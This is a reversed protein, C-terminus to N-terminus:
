PSSKCFKSISFFMFDRKIKQERKDPNSKVLMKLVVKKYLLLKCLKERIVTQSQLKKTCSYRRLLQEYFTSSISIQAWNWWSKLHANKTRVDMKAAKKWTVHVHFFSGFRINTCFVLVSLTSSISMQTWLNYSNQFFFNCIWYVLFAM